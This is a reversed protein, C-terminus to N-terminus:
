NKKGDLISNIKEINNKVRRKEADIIAVVEDIAKEKTENFVIYDFMKYKLLEGKASRLRRAIADESETGRARLREELVDFSPTMLFIAIADPYQKKINKAGHIDIEFMVDYGKDLMEIVPAKPTGYCNCYVEATELFEGRAIMEQYEEMSKFYYHVGEIEGNRPARTTVSISKKIHPRRLVVENYITGKGAGSPGSIIYLTGKSM